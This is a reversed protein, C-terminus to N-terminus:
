VVSVPMLDDLSTIATNSSARDIVADVGMRASALIEAISYASQPPAVSCTYTVARYCVVVYDLLHTVLQPRVGQFHGTHAIKNRLYYIRRLQRGVDDQTKRIRAFVAKNDKLEKFISFLRFRLHEMGEIESFLEKVIGEDMLMAFVHRDTVRHDFVQLGSCIRESFLQNVRVENEVLLGRLYSIRRELGAVAYFHPVYELINALISSDGDSFISELAIWLNLLKQELSVSARALRLHRLSRGIQEKADENLSDLSKRISPGPDSFYSGVESSMFALLM